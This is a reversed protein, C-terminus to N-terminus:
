SSARSSNVILESSSGEMPRMLVKWYDWDVLFSVKTMLRNSFVFKCKNAEFSKHVEPPFWCENEYTDCDFARLTVYLMLGSSIINLM